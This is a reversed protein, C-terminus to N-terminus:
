RERPCFVQPTAINRYGLHPYLRAGAASAVLVNACVGTAKDDSLMRSMLARGYGRGRFEEYVFLDSTWADPGCALSTVWGYDRIADFIGYLRAGGHPRAKAAGGPSRACARGRNRNV